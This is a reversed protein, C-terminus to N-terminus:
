YLVPFSGYKATARNNLWCIALNRNESRTARSCYFSNGFGPGGTNENYTALFDGKKTKEVTKTTLNSSQSDM